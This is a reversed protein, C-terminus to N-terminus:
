PVGEFADQIRLFPPCSLSFPHLYVFPAYFRFQRTVSLETEINLGLALVSIKPGRQEALHKGPGTPEEDSVKASMDM